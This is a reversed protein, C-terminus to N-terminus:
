PLGLTNCTIFGNYQMGINLQLYFYVVCNKIHCHIFTRLKINLLLNIM